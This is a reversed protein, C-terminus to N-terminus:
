SLREDASPAWSWAGDYLHPFVAVDHCGCGDPGTCALRPVLDAVKLELRDGFRTQLDAPTWEVM